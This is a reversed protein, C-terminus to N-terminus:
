HSLFGFLVTLAVDFGTLCWMITLIVDHANRIPYSFEPHDPNYWVTGKTGRPFAEYLTDGVQKCCDYNDRLKGSPTYLSKCDEKKKKIKIHSFSLTTQYKQGIVTFEYIPLAVRVEFDNDWDHDVVTGTTKKTIKSDIQWQKFSMFM